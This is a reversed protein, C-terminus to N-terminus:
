ISHNLDTAAYPIGAFSLKESIHRGLMGSAGAIWIM